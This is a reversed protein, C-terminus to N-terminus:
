TFCSLIQSCSCNSVTRSDEWVGVRTTVSNCGFFLFNEIEEFCFKKSFHYLAISVRATSSHEQLQKSHQRVGVGTSLTNM